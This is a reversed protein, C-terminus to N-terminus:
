AYRLFFQAEDSNESETAWNVRKYNFDGMICKHSHRREAVWKLFANLKNNNNDSTATKTPSRYCCGLLLTDGGRLHVELICAKNFAVESKVQIVSRDISEHSYIAIGRGVDKELNTLSTM